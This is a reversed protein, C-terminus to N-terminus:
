DWRWRSGVRVRDLDEEPALYHVDDFPKFHNYGCYMKFVESDTLWDDMIDEDGKTEIVLNEGTSENEEDKVRVAWDPNYNGFPTPIKYWSPLKIFYEIRNNKDAATGFQSEKGSDKFFGNYPNRPSSTSIFNEEVGSPPREILDTLSYSEGANSYILGDKLVCRMAKVLRDKVSEIFMRPNVSFDSLRGSKILITCITSRTLGTAEQIEKILDPMHEIRNQEHFRSSTEVGASVGDESMEFDESLRIEVRRKTIPPISKIGTVAENVLNEVNLNYSYDARRAISAWFSSFKDSMIIESDPELQRRTRENTVGGKFDVGFEDRIETQLKKAFDDYHENAIVILRNIREDYTRVWNDMVALRLGRGIEQRKRIESKSENLTCIQFINPNDWGERLASHSVVIQVPEEPSLLREKDQMILKFADSDAKTSANLKSDKMRNKTDQAFYGKHVADAAPLDLSSYKEQKCYHNYWEEIWLRIKGELEAYNAVRDIFILSLVKISRGTDKLIKNIELKRDLHRRITEDVQAKMVQDRNAGIASDLTVLKGNTFSMEGSRADVSEVVYGSYEERGGSLEHLDDGIKAKVTKLELNKLSDFRVIRIHGVIQKKQPVVRVLEIRAGELEEEEMVSSVAIKKVLGLNYAQVPDLRYLLHYRYKHTASFGFAAQPNLSAISRLAKQGAMKQPEDIIVIPKVKRILDVPVRIDEFTTQEHQKHIINNKAKNFADINIIMIQLINSAAFERLLSIKGSDYIRHEYPIGPYVSALHEKMMRLQTMAGERIAVNPVVIIFKTFGHKIHLDFLSRIYIYTKGTGTEMEISFNIFSGGQMGTEPDDEFQTLDLDTLDEEGDLGERSQISHINELITEDDPLDPNSHFITDTLLAEKVYLQTPSSVTGNLSDRIANRANTQYQMNQEYKMISSREFYYLM